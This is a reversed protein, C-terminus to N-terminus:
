ARWRLSCSQTGQSDQRSWIGERQGDKMRFHFTTQFAAPEKAKKTLTVEQHTELWSVSQELEAGPDSPANLNFSAIGPLLSFLECSQQMLEFELPAEKAPKECVASWRGSFNACRGLQASTNENPIITGLDKQKRPVHIIDGCSCGLIALFLSSPVVKSFWSKM